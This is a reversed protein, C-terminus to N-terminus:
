CTVTDQRGAALMPELLTNTDKGTVYVNNNLAIVSFGWKNYDPFDPLAIWSESVPFSLSHSARLFKYSTLARIKM